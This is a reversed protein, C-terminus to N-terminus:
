AILRFQLTLWRQIPRPGSEVFRFGQPFFIFINGESGHDFINRVRSKAYISVVIGSLGFSLGLWSSVLRASM